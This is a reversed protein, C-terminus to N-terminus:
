KSIRQKMFSETYPHLSQLNFISMGANLKFEYYPLFTCIAHLTMDQFCIM